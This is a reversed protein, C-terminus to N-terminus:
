NDFFLKGTLENTYTAQYDNMRAVKKILDMRGHLREIQEPRLGKIFDLLERKHTDKRPAKTAPTRM